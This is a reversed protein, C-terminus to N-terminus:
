VYIACVQRKKVPAHRTIEAQWQDLLTAPAVVLTARVPVPVWEMVAAEGGAQDYIGGESQRRKEVGSQELPLTQAAWAGVRFAM